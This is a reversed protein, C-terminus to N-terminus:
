IMDSLRGLSIFIRKQAVHTLATEMAAELERRSVTATGIKGVVIGAAANALVAAERFSFGSSLSLGLVAAVTDGAGSVDYVQRARTKIKYPAEGDEFLVM